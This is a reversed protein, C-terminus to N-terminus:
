RLAQALAEDFIRNVHKNVTNQAAFQFDFRPTVTPVRDLQKFVQLPTDGKMRYIGPKPMRGKGLARLRAETAKRQDKNAIDMAFPVYVYSGETRYKGPRVSARISEMAKIGYLAEVYQSARVRGQSNLKAGSGQADPIMYRGNYGNLEANLRQQFRTRYVMGGKIQPLLYTAPAQGKAGEDRIFIETWPEYKTALHRYLVSRLTYSSVRQFSDQMELQMDQRVQTALRNVTVAAAFPLQVRAFVDLERTLQTGNFEVSAM